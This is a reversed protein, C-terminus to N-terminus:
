EEISAPLTLFLPYDTTFLSELASYARRAAAAKIYYPGVPVENPMDGITHVYSDGDWIFIDDSLPPGKYLVYGADSTFEPHISIQIYEPKGVLAYAIGLANGFEHTTESAPQAIAIAIDTGAPQPQFAPAPDFVKPTEQVVTAAKVELKEDYSLVRKRTASFRLTAIEDKRLQDKYVFVALEFNAKSATLLGCGTGDGGIVVKRPMVRKEDDLAYLVVESRQGQLRVLDFEFVASRANQSEGGCSLPRVRSLKVIPQTAASSQLYTGVYIVGFVFGAFGLVILAFNVSNVGYFRHSLVTQLINRNKTQKKM